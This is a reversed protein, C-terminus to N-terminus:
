GNIDSWDLTNSAVMKKSKDITNIKDIKDAIDKKIYYEDCEPCYKAPVGKLLLVNSLDNNKIVKKTITRDELNSSCILCEMM